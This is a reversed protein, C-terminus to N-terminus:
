PPPCCAGLGGGLINLRTAMAGETTAGSIESIRPVNNTNLELAETSTSVPADHENIDSDQADDKSISILWKVGVSKTSVGM